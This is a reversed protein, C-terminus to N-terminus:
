IFRLFLLIWTVKNENYTIQHIKNLIYFDLAGYNPLDLDHAYENNQQGVKCYQYYYRGLLSSSM